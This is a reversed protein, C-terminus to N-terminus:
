AEVAAVEYNPDRYYTGKSATKRDQEEALLREYHSAKSSLEFLDRFETGYFKKMKFGLSNLAIRVYEAQDHKGAFPSVPPTSGAPSVPPSGNETPPKVIMIRRTVKLTEETSGGDSESMQEFNSWLNHSNMLEFANTACRAYSLSLPTGKGPNSRFGFTPHKRLKGLGSEPRPGAVTDDWLKDLLSM